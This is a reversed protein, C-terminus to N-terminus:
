LLLPSGLLEPEKIAPLKLPPLVTVATPLVLKLMLTWFSCLLNGEQHLYRGGEGGLRETLFSPPCNRAVRRSYLTTNHGRKAVATLLFRFCIGSRHDAIM